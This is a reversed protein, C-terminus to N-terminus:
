RRMKAIDIAQEQSIIPVANSKHMTAIGIVLDGTYQPRDIKSVTNKTTTAVASPYKKIDNAWSPISYNPLGRKTNGKLLRDGRSSIASELFKNM